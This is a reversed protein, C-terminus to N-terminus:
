DLPQNIKRGYRSIKPPHEEKTMQHNGHSGPAQTRSESSDSSDDTKTSIKPNLADNLSETKKTENVNTKSGSSVPSLTGSDLSIVGTDLSQITQDFSVITQDKLGSNEKRLSDPEDDTFADDDEDSIVAVLEHSQRDNENVTGGSDPDHTRPGPPENSDNVSIEDYDTVEDDLVEQLCIKWKERGLMLRNSTLGTSTHPTSRYAGQDTHVELPIGFRSFFERVVTEAVTEATQDALPYAETWKSFQEVLVLVYKSGRRSKPFPGLIDLQIRDMPAGTQYNQMPARSAKTSKKNVACQQCCSIYSAVDNRMGYWYFNLRVKEVTRHIRPHAALVSKHCVELVEKKLSEPIIFLEKEDDITKLKYYVVGDPMSLRQFCLWYHRLAPCEKVIHNREPPGHKMWEILNKTVSDKLQKEQFQIRSYGEIWTCHRDTNDNPDIATARKTAIPLVDDVDAEFKEWQTHLKSCHQCGNCPLTLPDMGAKYCDCVYSTEPYRFLADAKCHDKGIRHGQVSMTDLFCFERKFFNVNSPNSNSVTLHSIHSEFDPSAIIVDDLYILVMEWQLGRLVLEMVRQFTGPAGCLGFPM